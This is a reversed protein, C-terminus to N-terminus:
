RNIDMVTMLICLGLWYIIYLSPAMIQLGSERNSFNGYILFYDQWDTGMDLIFGNLISFEFFDLIWSLIFIPFGIIVTYALTKTTFTLYVSCFQPIRTLKSDGNWIWTKFSNWNDQKPHPNNHVLFLKVTQIKEVSQWCFCLGCFLNTVTLNCTM